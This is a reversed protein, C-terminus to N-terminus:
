TVFLEGGALPNRWLKFRRWMVIIANPPQMPAPSKTPLPTTMLAAPGAATTDNTIV